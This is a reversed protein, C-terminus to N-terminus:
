STVARAAALFLCLIPLLAVAASQVAVARCAQRQARRLRARPGAAARAARERALERTVTAWVRDRAGDAGAAGAHVTRLPQQSAAAAHVTVPRFPGAHVPSVPVAALEVMLVEQHPAHPADPAPIGLWSAGREELLARLVPGDGGLDSGYSWPIGSRARAQATRLRQLNATM